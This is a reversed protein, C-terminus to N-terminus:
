AVKQINRDRVLDYHMHEIDKKINRILESFDSSCAESYNDKIKWLEEMVKDHTKKSEIKQNNM